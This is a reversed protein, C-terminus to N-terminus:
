SRGARAADGPDDRRIRSSARGSSSPCAPISAPPCPGDSGTDAGAPRAAVVPLGTVVSPGDVHETDAGGVHAARRHELDQEARRQAGPAHVGVDVRGAGHGVATARDRATTSIQASRPWSRGAWRPRGSSASSTAPASRTSPQGALVHALRPAPGPPRRGCRCGWPAPAGCGRATPPRRGALREGGEEGPMWSPRVGSRAAATSGSRRRPRDWRRGSTRSRACRAVLELPQEGGIAPRSARRGAVPGGPWGDALGVAGSRPSRSMGQGVSSSRSSNSRM